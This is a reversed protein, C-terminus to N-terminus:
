KRVNTLAAGKSQAFHMELLDFLWKKTIAAYTDGETLYRNSEKRRKSLKKSILVGAEQDRPNASSRLMEGMKDLIESIPYQHVKRFGHGFEGLWNVFVDEQSTLPTGRM